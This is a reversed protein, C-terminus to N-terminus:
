PPLTKVREVSISLPLAPLALSLRTIPCSVVITFGISNGVVPYGFPHHFRFLKIDLALTRTLSEDYM